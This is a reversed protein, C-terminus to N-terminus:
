DPLHHKLFTSIASATAEPADIAPIHGSGQLLVLQATDILACTEAVLDPPTALDDTGAIMLTPVAIRGVESRFDAKALAGCTGTYGPADCRLLMTGWPRAADSQRFEAAFWRELVADRIAAIGGAEVADIRAAWAEATGIKAATNSLVLARVLGQHHIAIAQAIMGGVSCGAVVARKIGLFALLAAADGALDTVTWPTQPTFSLGHGRKDFRIHRWGPLQAVVGDWMRLDTGLSNAWLIAPADDPGSIHYHMHGWPQILCKMLVGGQYDIGYTLRAFFVFDV